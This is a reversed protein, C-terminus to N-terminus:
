TVTAILIHRSLFGMLLAIVYGNSTRIDKKKVVKLIAGFLWYILVFIAGFIVGETANLLRGYVEEM